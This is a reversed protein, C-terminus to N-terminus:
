RLDGDEKELIDIGEVVDLAEPHLHWDGHEDGVVVHGHPKAIRRVVFRRGLLLREMEFISRAVVVLTGPTFIESYPKSM